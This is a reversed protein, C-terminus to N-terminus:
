GLVSGLPIPQGRVFSAADMAAKGERQLRTFAVAGEGCAVTLPAAIVTGPAGGMDMVQAALAKVRAGNLEFWAGPYPSFAHIQRKVDVAPRSWDIRAERKDIKAAYTVGVDPQPRATLEGAAVGELARAMLSAGIESLRDHLTGATDAEAIPTAEKLIMPGTDLGADMNMITVGTELDGALIARQIPAAGRWRPLLSGHVNFCGLRPLDLVAKPLLLGYAVVVIADLNFARLREIEAPDKLSTPTYVPLGLAAAAAAVPSPRPQQGRGAPRPPQSYVAVIQHGAAQLARLTPVAFDPTGMFALRLPAPVIRGSEASPAM